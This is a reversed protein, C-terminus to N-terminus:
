SRRGVRAARVISKVADAINSGDDYTIGNVNYTDGGRISSTSENVMGLANVVDELSAARRRETVHDSIAEFNDFVSVPQAASLITGISGVGSQIDTLDLVPRIVPQSDIGEAVATNITGIAAQLGRTAATAMATSSAEVSEIKNSIGIAFGEGVYEGIQMTVRSPSQVKLTREIALKAALAVAYSAAAVSVVARSIGIAFGEATSRGTEILAGTDIANRAAIILGVAAESVKTSGALGKALNSAIDAGAGTFQETKTAELAAGLLGNVATGMAAINESSNVGAAYAAGISAGSAQMKGSSESNSDEAAKSAAKEIVTSLATEGIAAVAGKLRSIGTTDLDKLKEIADVVRQLAEEFQSLLGEDMIDGDFSVGDKLLTLAEALQSAATSAAVAPELFQDKGIFQAGFQNIVSALAALKGNPGGLSKIDEVSVWDWKAFASGISALAEVVAASNLVKDSDINDDLNSVYGSIGEALTPLQSAFNSIKSANGEIFGILGGKPVEGNAFAALMSALNKSATIKTQDFTTEDIKEAYSALAIALRPLQRAFDSIKTDNGTIVGILGGSQIENRGLAALMRALNTSASIKSPNFTEADIKEAYSALGIALRPLQKAFDSIKTDNGQIMGIIGGDPIDGTAITALTKALNESAKIKDDNFITLNIMSAYGSLGIALSPLQRAFASINSNGGTIMGIIGESKIENKSLDAVMTALNKSAEIKEENFITGNIMAAYSSIGIALLPLNKGFEKIKDAGGDVLGLISGATPPLKQSALDSLMEALSKSAEIKDDNFITANIMAAYSSLGIALLPLNKGFAAIKEAGGDLLGLISGETPPLKHAALDALLSLASASANVKSEDLNEPLADAYAGIAAALEPMQTKFKEIPSDGFLLTGIADWIESKAIDGVSSILAKLGSFSEETYGATATIIPMLADAFGGLAESLVPLYEGIGGIFKGIGQGAFEGLAGVILMLGAVLALVAGVGIFSNAGFMGLVGAVGSLLTIMGIVKVISDTIGTLDESAIDSMSKFLDKIALMVIAMAAVALASTKTLGTVGALLAMVGMVSALAKSASELRKPEILSLAALSVAMITLVAALSILTLTSKLGGSALKTAAILAILLVTLAGMALVSRLIDQEDISSIIKLAAALLVFAVGIAAISAAAGLANKGAARTAFLVAAIAIVIIALNKVINLINKFRVRELIKLLGVMLGMAVVLALINVGALKSKGAGCAKTVVVLFVGLAVMLGALKIVSSKLEDPNLYEVAKLAAVLLLIAASMALMGIGANKADKGSGGFKNVAITLVGLVGALAAVAGVSQWLRDPDIKSVAYLSAALLAIAGARMLLAQSKEKKAQANVWNTVMGLTEKVFKVAKFAAFAAVLAAISKVAVGWDTDTIFHKFRDFSASIRDLISTAEEFDEVSQTLTTTEEDISASLSGKEKKKGIGFFDLIPQLTDVIGQAWDPVEINSFAEGIQGPIGKIKEVIGDFDIGMNALWEKAKAKVDSFFSGFVDKLAQFGEFNKFNEGLDGFFELFADKIDGFSLAGDKGLLKINNFFEKISNWTKTLFPGTSTKLSEFAKSFKGVATEAFSSNKFSSWLGSLNDIAKKAGGKVFNFVKEVVRGFKEFANTVPSIDIGMSKFVNKIDDSLMKFATKIAKFADTNGFYTVITDKFAKFIDGIDGIQFGDSLIDKFRGAFVSWSASAGKLLKDNDGFVKKFAAGFRNLNKQVIPLNAFKNIWGGVIRGAKEATKNILNLAKNLPDAVKLWQTFKTILNAIGSGSPALTSIFGTIFGKLAAFIMAGKAVVAIMHGFGLVIKGLSGALMTFVKLLAAGAFARANKILLDFVNAVAEISAKLGDSTKVWEIIGETGEDFSKLIDFIQGGEIDPFVKSWETGVVDMFAYVIDMLNSLGNSWHDAGTQTNLGIREMIEAVTKGDHAMRQIAVAQNQTYGAAKLEELSMETISKTVDDTLVGMDILTDRLVEGQDQSLGLYELLSDMTAELEKNESDYAGNGFIISMIDDASMDKSLDKIDAIYNQIEEGGEELRKKLAEDVNTAVLKSESIGLDEVATQFDGISLAGSKVAAELFAMDNVISDRVFGHEEATKRLNKAVNPNFLGSNAFKDWDAMTATDTTGFADQLLDTLNTVPPVFVDYLFNAFDTWLSKASLYDGFLTEFLNMWATSAADAAADIAEQFTKAEQAAVFAKRGFEMEESGLDALIEKLREASVGADDVAKGWDITGEKYEDVYKLLKSTTDIDIEEMYGYLKDTFNGYKDLTEILVESSFWNDKLAENFNRVSVENGAQTKWLGESVKTLTGLKEATQIVTEKFEATAMNANEISRWDMLKVSGVGIAQALNYMARSAEGVNAGSKAAWTSIGQMATVSKELPIQNSTFKGINNVMDLFNYSTEDTFWNLKELQENVFEMQAGQDAWDKATASMITQVASTKDAYKQWGASVQDITVSKIFSEVANKAKIAEDAIMSFVAIDGISNLAGGLAGVGNTLAGISVQGASAASDIAKLGADVGSRSFDLAKKLREITSLSQKANSEFQQNQFELEVVRSDVSNGTSRNM